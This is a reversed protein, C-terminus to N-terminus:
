MTPDAAPARPARATITGPRAPGDGAGCEQSKAARTGTPMAPITIADRSDADVSAAGCVASLGLDRVDVFTPGERLTTCRIAPSNAISAAPPPRTVVPNRDYKKVERYWVDSIASPQSNKATERTCAM